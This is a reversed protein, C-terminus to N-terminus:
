SDEDYAGVAKGAFCQSCSPFPISPWNALKIYAPSILRGCLMKSQSADHILHLRYSQRHQGVEFKEM